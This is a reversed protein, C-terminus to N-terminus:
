SSINSDIRYRKEHKDKVPSGSKELKRKEATFYRQLREVEDKSGIIINSKQYYGDVCVDLLSAQGDSSLGGAQEILFALPVCEYLIRLKTKQLNSGISCYIGEGKILILNADASLSGTYRLMYGQKTWFEIQKRYALNDLISKSNAPSFIRTSKQIRLNLRTCEWFVTGDENERM